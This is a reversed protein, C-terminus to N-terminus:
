IKKAAKKGEFMANRRMIGQVIDHVRDVRFGELRAEGLPNLGHAVGVGLDDGDVALGRSARM